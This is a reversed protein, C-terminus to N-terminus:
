RHDAAAALTGLPLLQAMQEAVWRLPREDIHTRDFRGLLHGGVQAGNAVVPLLVGRKAAADLLVEGLSAAAHHDRSRREAHPHVDGVDPADDVVLQRAADLRVVLLGAARAAVPLRRFAGEEVARRVTVKLGEEDLLGTELVSRRQPVVGVRPESLHHGVGLHALAPM